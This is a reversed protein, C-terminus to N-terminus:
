NAPSVTVGVLFKEKDIVHIKKFARGGQPYRWFGIYDFKLGHKRYPVLVRDGYIWWEGGNLIDFKGPGNLSTSGVVTASSGSVSIQYIVSNNNQGYGLALHKGDWQIPGPSINLNTNINTPTGSGHPLEYLAFHSETVRGDVFLNGDNDYGCFMVAVGPLSYITPTGAGNSYIAVSGGDFNTVALNGTAADIACSFPEHGPDTLTNIPNTGGHAYEVVDSAGTDAIFVNGAKDVCEGDALDFGSLVGVLNGKPYGFVSVTGFDSSAYLLTEGTAERLMWSTGRHAHTAIASTQPIAGPAGIPPQSGSCGALLAVAVGVTLAYTGLGFSKM